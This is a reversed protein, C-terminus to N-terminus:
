HDKQPVGTQAASALFRAVEPHGRKRAHDAATLGDEDKKTVSAGAKVLIEVAEQHGQMAARMLPTWGWQIQAELPAKKAILANLLKANGNFAAYGLPSEGKTSAAPNAGAELLALVIAEHNEEAARTILAKPLSAWPSL